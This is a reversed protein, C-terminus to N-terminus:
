VTYVVAISCIQNTPNSKLRKYVCSVVSICSFFPRMTSMQRPKRKTCTNVCSAFSNYCFGRKPPKAAEEQRFPFAKNICYPLVNLYYLALDSKIPSLPFLSLTFPHYDMHLLLKLLFSSHQTRVM